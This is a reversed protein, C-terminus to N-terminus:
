PFLVRAIAKSVVFIRLNNSPTEVPTVFFGLGKETYNLTTAALVEGDAFTVIVRRGPEASPQPLEPQSAAGDLQRVFCVAKLNALPVTIRSEIPCDPASWIQFRGQQPSFDRGYGKLTRGDVYRVVLCHWGSPAASSDDRSTRAAVLHPRGVDRTITFVHAATELLQLQWKEFRHGRPSEVLLKTGLGSATPVDFAISDPGPLPRSPSADILQISRASVSRRLTELMGRVFADPPEGHAVCRTAAQLLRSTHRSFPGDARRGPPSEIIAQAAALASAGVSTLGWPAMRVGSSLGPHRLAAALRAHDRLPNIDSESAAPASKEPLEIPRKFELAGRYTIHPFISSVHSRLVQSPVAFEYDRGAIEIVVTAGPNLRLGSAEIQAGGASLDLLSVAPGYKLRVLNLWALERPTLRQHERRNFIPPVGADRDTGPVALALNGNM